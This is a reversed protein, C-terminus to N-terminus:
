SRRKNNNHSRQKKKSNINARNRRKSKLLKPVKKFAEENCRPCYPLDPNYIMLCRVCKKLYDREEKIGETSVPMFKFGMKKAINQIGYDDTSITIELDFPETENRRKLTEAMALVKIDTKSLTEGSKKVINKVKKIASDSPFDVLIDEFNIKFLSDSDKIEELVEPITLLQGFQKLYYLNGHIIASTDLIVIKKKEQKEKNGKKM